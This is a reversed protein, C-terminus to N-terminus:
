SFFSIIEAASFGDITEENVTYISQLPNLISSYEADEAHYLAFIYNTGITLAPVDEMVPICRNGLLASQEQEYGYPIGGQIRLKVTSPSGKYVEEAEIEYITYLMAWQTDEGDKLPQMNRMNLLEFSINVVKGSFVQNAKNALDSLTAYYPYDGSIYEYQISDTQQPLPATESNGQSNEPTTHQVPLTTHPVPSTTHQVPLTTQPVPSTTHQVSADTQAVPNEKENQSNSNTNAPEDRIIESVSESNEAARTVTTDATATQREATSVSATSESSIDSSNKNNAFDIDTSTDNPIVASVTPKANNNILQDHSASLVGGKWLGVAVAAAACVPTVAVAIKIMKARKMKKDAEYEDMRRHLDMIMEERKKM